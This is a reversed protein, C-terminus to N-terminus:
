KSADPNAPRTSEASAESDVAITTPVRGQRFRLLELAVAKEQDNLVGALLTLGGYLVLGAVAVLILEAFNAIWGRVILAYVVLGAGALVPRLASDRLVQLLPLRVIRIQVIPIFVLAQAANNVLLAYAAGIAGYRPVLVITLTVTVIASAVLIATTWHPRGTADAVLAPVGTLLNLGYALALLALINASADGFSPGLWTSMLPRALLGVLIVLPLTVALMLKSASTYLRQLRDQANVSHMESAAPFMATSFSAQVLTFKQTVSVPIAYYTVQSIPLFAAVIVRDLQYAGLWAIQGVFKVAGFGALQRLAWRDLRPRFSVEPLLGRSVVVFIVFGLVNVALTVAAVWRLGGGLKVAVIQAVATLTTLFITRSSFVDLRQVGQPIATFVTLALNLAFGIATLQLVFYADSQLGEPLHLFRDVVLPAIAFLTGGGILGLAVFLTFATGVIRGVAASDSTTTHIAIARVLAPTLGFDLLAAYGLVLSALVFVGYSATGLGHVLIPVTVVLIVASWAYSGTTFLLNAGTRRGTARLQAPM